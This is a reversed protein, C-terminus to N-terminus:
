KQATPTALYKFIATIQSESLGKGQLYKQMGLAVGDSGEGHIAILKAIEKHVAPLHHSVQELTTAKSGGTTSQTSTSGDEAEGRGEGFALNYAIAKNKGTFGMLFNDRNAFASEWESGYVELDSKRASQLQNIITSKDAGWDGLAAINRVEDRMDENSISKGKEGHRAMLRQRALTRILGKIENNKRVTETFSSAFTEEFAKEISTANDGVNANSNWLPSVLKSFSSTLNGLWNTSNDPSEEITKILSRYSTMLGNYSTKKSKIESQVVTPPRNSRLAVEINSLEKDNPHKKRLKSLVVLPNEKGTNNQVEGFRNITSSGNYASIYDNAFQAAQKQTLRDLVDRTSLASMENLRQGAREKGTNKGTVQSTSITGDKNVEWKTYMKEKADDTATRKTEALKAYKLALEQKKNALANHDKKTEKWTKLAEKGAIGVANLFSGPTSMLTLGFQMMAAGWEKDSNKMNLMKEGELYLELAKADLGKATLPGSTVAGKLTNTAVVAEQPTEVSAKKAAELNQLGKVGWDVPSLQKGDVNSMTSPVNSMQPDLTSEDVKIQPKKGTFDLAKLNAAAKEEAAITSVLSKTEDGQPDNLYDAEANAKEQQRKAYDADLNEYIDDINGMEADDATEADWDALMQQTELEDQKAFEVDEAEERQARVYATRALEEGKPSKSDEMQRRFENYAAEKRKKEERQKYELDLDAYMDDAESMQTDMKTDADWDALMQRTDTEDAEKAVLDEARIRDDNKRFGQAIDRSYQQRAQEEEDTSKFDRAMTRADHGKFGQAIDRSYQQRAQEEDNSKFGQAMTRAAYNSDLDAYMDDAGSMQTDMQTDADWDALMQRTDTEDAIGAQIDRSEYVKVLDAKRNQLSMHEKSKPDTQAILRDLVEIAGRFHEESWGQTEKAAQTTDDIGDTQDDVAQQLLDGTQQKANNLADSSISPIGANQQQAQAKAYDVERQMRNMSNEGAVVSQQAQTLQPQTHEVPLIPPTAVSGELGANQIGQFVQMQEPTWQNAAGSLGMGTANMADPELNARTWDQLSMGAQEASSGYLTGLAGMGMAMRDAMSMNNLENRDKVDSWKKADLRQWRDVASEGTNDLSRTFELLKESISM